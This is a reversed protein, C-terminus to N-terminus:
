RWGCRIPHSPPKKSHKKLFPSLKGLEAQQNQNPEMTSLAKSIVILYPKVPMLM